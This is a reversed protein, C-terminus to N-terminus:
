LFGAYGAGKRPWTAAGGFTHSEPDSVTARQSRIAVRKRRRSRWQVLHPSATLISKNSSILHNLHEINIWPKQLQSKTPDQFMLRLLLMHVSSWNVSLPGVHLHLLFRWQQLTCTLLSLLTTWCYLLYVTTSEFTGFYGMVINVAVNTPVPNNYECSM